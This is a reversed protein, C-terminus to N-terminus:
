LYSTRIEKMKSQLRCSIVDLIECWELLVSVVSQLGPFISSELKHLSIRPLVESEWASCRNEFRIATTEGAMGNARFRKARVPLRNGRVLLRKARYVRHLESGVVMLTTM